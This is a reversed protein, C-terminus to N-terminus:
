SPPTAFRGRRMRQSLVLLPRSRGHIMRGRAVLRDVDEDRVRRDPDSMGAILEDPSIM